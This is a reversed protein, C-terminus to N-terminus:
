HRPGAALETPRSSSAQFTQQQDPGPGLLGILAGTVSDGDQDELTFSGSWISSASQDVPSLQVFFPGQGSGRKGSGAGGTASFHISWDCLGALQVSTV